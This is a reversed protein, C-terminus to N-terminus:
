DNEDEQEPTDKGSGSYAYSYSYSYAYSSNKLAKKPNYRTLVVGLVKVDVEKLKRVATKVAEAPAFRSRVVFLVGDTMGGLIVADTVVSVPPADIIVYDFSAQLRGLLKKMQTQGLLESPNPPLTGAPLVYVSRQDLKILAEELTCEESLINSLGRKNHGLKMYKHLVPKRLDCDLVVVNKGSEAMTLALNVAVNSKAEEPITSTVVISRVGSTATMFHLNTRLSKYAEVYSFPMGQQTVLQLSRESEHPKKSFLKPM